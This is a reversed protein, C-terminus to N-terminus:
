RGRIFQGAPFRRNALHDFFVDDPVLGPVAVVSWGTLRLARRQDARFGPDQATCIWRRWGM